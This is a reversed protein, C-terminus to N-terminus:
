ALLTQGGSRWTVLGPPGPVGCLIGRVATLAMTERMGSSRKARVRVPQAGMCQLLHADAPRRSNQHLQERHGGGECTKGQTQGAAAWCHSGQGCPVRGLGGPLALHAYGRVSQSSEPVCARLRTQVRVQHFSYKDYMRPFYWLTQNLYKWADPDDSTVWSARPRLLCRHTWAAHICRAWRCRM